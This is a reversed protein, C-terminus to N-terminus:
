KLRSKVEAIAGNIANGIIAKGHEAGPWPKNWEAIHKAKIARLSDLAEADAKRRADDRSPLPGLGDTSEVSSSAYWCESGDDHRVLIDCMAVGLPEWKIVEGRMKYWASEVKRGIMSM